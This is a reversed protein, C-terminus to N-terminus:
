PEGKRDELYDEIKKKYTDKWWWQGPHQAENELLDTLFNFLKDGYKQNNKCNERIEDIIRGTIVKYAM